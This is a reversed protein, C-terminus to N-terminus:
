CCTKPKTPLKTQQSKPKPKTTKTKKIITQKNTTQNPNTSETTNKNPQNQNTTQKLNKLNETSNRLIKKKLLESFNKLMVLMCVICIHRLSSQIGPISIKMNRFGKQLGEPSFHLHRLVSM